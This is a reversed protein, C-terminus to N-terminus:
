AFTLFNGLKICFKQEDRLKRNTQIYINSFTSTYCKIDSFTLTYCKINSREYQAM